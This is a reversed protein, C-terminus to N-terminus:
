LYGRLASQFSGVYGGGFLNVHVLLPYLQYLDVREAAGPALPHAEAYAAFVRASVGGFLRMMALDIERHGGYAAPDVLVPEGRADIMLNGSWLDGHLRAPPEPPGCVEALRELLADASRATDHPLAGADVASRILPALREQAYFSPWDPHRRNSQPLSGIFNDESGGFGDAGALHLEALGRGLREDFDPGPRGTEIWDLVLVPQRDSVARVRAIGITGAERLWELGSAECHALRQPADDYCKVFLPDGGCLTVRYSRGISGGGVPHAAEVSEGLLTELERRLEANM